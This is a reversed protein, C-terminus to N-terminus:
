RDYDQWRAGQVSPRESVPAPNCDPCRGYVEHQDETGSLLILRDGGCIRCGNNAAHRNTGESPTHMDFGSMSAGEQTAHGVM